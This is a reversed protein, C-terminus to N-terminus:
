TLNSTDPKFFTESPCDPGTVQNLLLLEDKQDYIVHM